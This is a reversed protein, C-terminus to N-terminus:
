NGRESSDTKLLDRYYITKSPCGKIPIKTRFAIALIPFHEAPVAVLALIEPEIVRSLLSKLSKQM